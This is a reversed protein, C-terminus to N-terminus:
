CNANIKKIASRCTNNSKVSHPILTITSGAKTCKAHKGGEEVSCGNKKCANRLKSSSCDAPYKLSAELLSSEERTELSKPADPRIGTNAVSQGGLSVLGLFLGLTMAVGTVMQKIRRM